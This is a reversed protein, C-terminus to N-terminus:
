EYLILTRLYKLETSLNLLNKVLRNENITSYFTPKSTTFHSNMVYQM